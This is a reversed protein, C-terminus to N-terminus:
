VRVELEITPEYGTCKQMLNNYGHCKFGVWDASWHKCPPAKGNRLCIEVMDRKRKAMDDGSISPRLYM